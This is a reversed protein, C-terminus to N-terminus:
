EIEGKVEGRDNREAGGGGGKGGFHLHHSVFARIKWTNHTCYIVQLQHQHCLPECGQQEGELPLVDIHGDKGSREGMKQVGRQGEDHSQVMANLAFSQLIDTSIYSTLVTKNTM